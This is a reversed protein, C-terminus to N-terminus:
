LRGPEETESIKWAFISSHAAMEKELPDDWGLSQVGGADEVNVPLNKVASGGPFGLRYCTHTHKTM